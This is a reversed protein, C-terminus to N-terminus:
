VTSTASSTSNLRSTSIPSSPESISTSISHHGSGPQRGSRARRQCTLCRGPAADSQHLGPEGSRDRRRREAPPDDGQSLAPVARLSAPLCTRRATSSAVVISEQSREEHMSTLAQVLLRDREDDDILRDWVRSAVRDYKENGISVSMSGAQADLVDAVVRRTVHRRVSGFALALRSARFLVRHRIPPRQWGRDFAEGTMDARVLPISMARYDINEVVLGLHDIRAVVDYICVITKAHRSKGVIREVVSLDSRGVRATVNEYFAPEAMHAMPFLVFPPCNIPHQFSWVAARVARDDVEVFQM